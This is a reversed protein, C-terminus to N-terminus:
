VSEWLRSTPTPTPASEFNMNNKSQFNNMLAAASEFAEESKHTYIRATLSIDSHGMLEKAVNIPVGAAQLDTCYTHRMCYPVLDDAVRYPAVVQNRFVKCGMAINMDRKFNNWMRERCDANIPAGNQNTFLYDYPALKPLKELFIDPIPVYRNANSTKTGEIHLIKKTFDIHRGQILATEHPRLGCYLMILIWLGARNYEAVELIYKRELKTIARRETTHGKPKILKAAPNTLIMKNDLAKEFIDFMANNVKKIHNASFGSLNNLIRQCHLPKVDKIQMQGIQSTINKHIRSKLDNYSIPKLSNEKYTELYNSIWDKVKINGSIIVKGEELDRKKMAIKVALEELTPATLDYRKGDFTFTKRPM